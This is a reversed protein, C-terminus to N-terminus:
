KWTFSGQCARWLDDPIYYLVGKTCHQGTSFKVRYMKGYASHECFPLDGINDGGIAGQKSM